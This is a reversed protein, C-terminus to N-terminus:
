TTSPGESADSKPPPPFSAFPPTRPVDNYGPWSGWTVTAETMFNRQTQIKAVLRNDAMQSGLVWQPWVGMRWEVDVKFLWKASPQLVVPKLQWGARVYETAPSPPDEFEFPLDQLKDNIWVAPERYESGPDMHLAIVPFVLPGTQYITLHGWPRFFLVEDRFITALAETGRDSRRRATREDVFHTEAYSRLRKELTDGASVLGCTELYARIEGEPEAAHHKLMDVVTTFAQDQSGMGVVRVLAGQGVLDAAAHLGGGRRVARLCRLLEQQLPDPTM